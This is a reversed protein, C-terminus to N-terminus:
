VIVHGLLTLIIYLFDFICHKFLTVMRDEDELGQYVNKLNRLRETYLGAIGSRDLTGIDGGSGKISIVECKEGTLPDKEITKCSTNGGGFNTIRLDSGLLNSRYLFLALQDDELNKAKKDDWLYDVYKYKNKNKM